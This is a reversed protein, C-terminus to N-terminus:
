VCWWGCVDCTACRSTFGSFTCSPNAPTKPSRFFPLIRHEPSDLVLFCFCPQFLYGKPIIWTALIWHPRENKQPSRKKPSSTDLGWFTTFLLTDRFYDTLFFRAQHFIMMYVWIHQLTKRVTDSLVFFLLQSVPIGELMKIASKPLLFGM